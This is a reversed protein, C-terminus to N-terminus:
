YWLVVNLVVTHSVNEIKRRLANHKRENLLVLDEDFFHVLWELGGQCCGMEDLVFTHSFNEKRRQEVSQTFSNLLIPRISSLKPCYSRSIYVLFIFRGRLSPRGNEEQVCLFVQFGWRFIVLVSSSDLLGCQM